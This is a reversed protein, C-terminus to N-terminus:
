DGILPIGALSISEVAKPLAAYDGEQALVQGGKKETIFKFYDSVTQVEEKSTGPLLGYHTFALDYTLGCLPYTKEALKTTVENWNETVSPPPFSIEKGESFNSYLTKKCNATNTTGNEGNLSPEQFKAKGKKNENELEAWFTAKGAGGESGFQPVGRATALDVYGIFGPEKAVLKALEGGGTGTPTVVGAATPWTQDLAGEGLEAWTHSGKATVLPEKNILNMFKMLIHTSGSEDKRVAPQIKDTECGAGTLKDGGAKLEGWTKVTGAFIGQLEADGIVLRGASATSTAECGTPLHMLVVIAGQVVPVTLVSEATPESEQKEAEKIQGPNPPDDTGVFANTADFHITSGENEIGWSKLGAGSGVSSYKVVPSKGDGQTGNCASKAASKDFQQTWFSLQISKQLSSGQGTIEVGSCQNPNKKALATGPVALALAAVAAICALVFKRASLNRM